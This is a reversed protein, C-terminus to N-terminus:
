RHEQEKIIPFPTFCIYASPYIALDHWQVTKTMEAEARQYDPLVHLVCALPTVQTGARQHQSLLSAHLSSPYPGSGPWQVVETAQATQHQSFLHLVFALPPVQLEQERTNPFSHLMYALPTLALDLGDVHHQSFTTMRVKPNRTINGKIPELQGSILGLGQVLVLVELKTRTLDWSHQEQHAVVARVGAGASYHRCTYCRWRKWVPSAAVICPNQAPRACADSHLFAISTTCCLPSSHHLVLADLRHQRCPLHSCSACDM